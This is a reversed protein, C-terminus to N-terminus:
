ESVSDIAKAYTYQRNLEAIAEKEDLDGFMVSMQLCVGLARLEKENM